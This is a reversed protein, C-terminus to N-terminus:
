GSPVVARRLVSKYDTGHIMPHGSAMTVLAQRSLDITRRRPMPSRSSSPSSRGSGRPSCGCSRRPRCSWTPGGDSAPTWPCSSSSASELGRELAFRALPVVDPETRGRIAVVNLKIQRFGARGAAEIGALVQPLQDSRTVAQFRQPDLSDLSINLRRLGAARLSEAHQALLIGNTTMTLEDIGPVAALMEVLRVVGKRVLPEGGTVRVRRIGLGAAVRALREIEEFRLIADHLKFAVGQETMCYVCRMNCRDTVSVRLDTHARGFSDILPDAVTM